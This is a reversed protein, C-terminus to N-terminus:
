NKSELKDWDVQDLYLDLKEYLRQLEQPGRYRNRVELEKGNMHVETIVAPLDTVHENDYEEDFAFYDIEEVISRLSEMQEQSLRGQFLGINNVFNTGRYITYGSKYITVNFVKCQGFCPTREYTIFTSDASMTDAAAQDAEVENMNDLIEETETTTETEVTEEQNKCSSFGLAFVLTFTLLTTFIRM